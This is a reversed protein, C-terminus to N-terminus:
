GAGGRARCAHDPRENALPLRRHGPPRDQQRRVVHGLRVLQALAHRDDIAAADERDPRRGLDRAAARPPAPAGGGGGAARRPPTLPTPALAASVLEPSPAPRSATPMVSTSASSAASVPTTWATVLM